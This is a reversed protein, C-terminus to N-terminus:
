VLKAAQNGIYTLAQKFLPHWNEDPDDDLPHWFFRFNLGGGDTTKHAWAKRLPGTRCLVFHWEQAPEEMQVNGLYAIAIGEVGSEEFLEREAAHQITENNEITGKVLQYGATPHRFALIEIREGTKRAVVPCAKRAKCM